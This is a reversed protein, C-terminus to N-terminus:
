LGGEANNDSGTAFNVHVWFQFNSNKYLFVRILMQSFRQIHTELLHHNHMMHYWLLQLQCCQVTVRLECDKCGDRWKWFGRM